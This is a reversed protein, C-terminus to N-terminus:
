FNLKFDVGLTRPPVYTTFVLPIASIPRRKFNSDDRNLLNDGYVGVEWDGSRLAARLYLQQSAGNRESERNSIESYSASTVRYRGTLQARFAESIDFSYDATLGLKTKPTLQIRNGEQAVVAGQANVVTSKFKADVYAFNVGVNLGPIVRGGLEIEAGTSEAKGVNQTYGNLGDPTTLALQLDTWNNRYLYTNLYWGKAPTMKAGLEYAVLSEPKFGRPADPYTAASLTNAGGGRFGKSVKAFLLTEPSVTWNLVFKPSTANAKNTGSATTGATTGFIASSTEQSIAVDKTESYYRLGAQASLSSTLKYELEGFVAQAKVKHTESSLNKDDVLGFGPVTITYGNNLIDQNANRYYAGVTWNLPLDGNSSLRVEQTFAKVRSPFSGYVSGGAGAPGFFLPAIFSNDLNREVKQDFATSSSVLTVPGFDYNITLNAVQSHNDRESRAKIPGAGPFANVPDLLGPSTAGGDGAVTESSIYSADVTLARQPTWRLALRQDTKTAENANKAGIDPISVWGPLKQKGVAAILALQDRVLPVNVSAQARYGSGGVSVKSGGFAVRGFFDTSDPKRTIIRITGGMSGEGFLTGQPGRLVEVREVDWLGFDPQAGPIGGLPAEDIYLGNASSNEPAESLDTVGRINISLEGPNLAGITVGAVSNGLDQVSKVGTRELTQGTVSYLSIPVSQAEQLRKQATVVVTALNEVEEAKKTPPASAAAAPTPATQAHAAGVSAALL